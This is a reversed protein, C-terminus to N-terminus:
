ICGSASLCHLGRGLCVLYMKLNLLIHLVLSCKLLNCEMEYHGSWQGRNSVTLRVAM